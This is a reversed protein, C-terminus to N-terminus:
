ATCRRPSMPRPRITRSWPRSATSRRGALVRPAPLLPRDGDGQRRSPRPDPRGEAPCRPQLRQGPLPPDARRVVGAVEADDGPRPRRRLDARLLVHGDSLLRLRRGQPRPAARHLARGGGVSEEYQNAEYYSYAAMIQGRTAWQSYPHQREVEEFSKAAEQFNGEALHSQGQSYLEEAPLEPAPAEANGGCGAIM